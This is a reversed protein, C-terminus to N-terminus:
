ALLLALAAQADQRMSQDLMPWHRSGDTLARGLAALRKRDLPCVSRKRFRFRDTLVTM